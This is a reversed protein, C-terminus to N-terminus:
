IHILSLTQFDRGIARQAYAPTEFRTFREGRLNPVVGTTFKGTNELGVNIGRRDVIAPDDAFAQDDSPADSGTNLNDLADQFNQENFSSDSGISPDSTDNSDNFSDGGGFPDSSDSFGGFDSFDDVGGGNYFNQVPTGMLGVGMNMPPQMPQQMMPNMPPQNMGMMGMGMSPPQNFIDINNMPNPAPMMPSSGLSPIPTMSTTAPISKLFNNFGGRSEATTTFSVQPPQPPVPPTGMNGGM